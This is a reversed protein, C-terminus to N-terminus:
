HVLIAIFATGILVPGFPVATRRGVRRAAMLVVLVLAFAVSAVLFGGFMRTVGALLGIAAALKVDGGGLDGGLLRDTVLLLVPAGVGAAVASVIPLELGALLPSIGLVMLVAAYLVLPLTLLDPLMRQDLDTALLVILPVAFAGLLVLAQPDQWRLVLGAAVAAGTITVVGTRWDLGRPRYDAEHEPWRTSLRDAILGLAGGALAALLPGFLESLTTPSIEVV